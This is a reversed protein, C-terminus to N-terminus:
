VPTSQLTNMVSHIPQDHPSTSSTRKYGPTLLLAALILAVILTAILILLTRSTRQTTPEPHKASNKM